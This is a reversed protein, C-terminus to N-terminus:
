ERHFRRIRQRFNALPCTCSGDRRSSGSRGDTEVHSRLLGDVEQLGGRGSNGDIADGAAVARLDQSVDVSVSVDTQEIIDCGQAHLYRSARVARRRPAIAVLM